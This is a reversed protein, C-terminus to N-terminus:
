LAIRCVGADGVIIADLIIDKIVETIREKACPTTVVGKAILDDVDTYKEPDVVTNTILGFKSLIEIIKKM